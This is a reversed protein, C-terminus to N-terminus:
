ADIYVSSGIDVKLLKFVQGCHVLDMLIVSQRLVDMLSLLLIGVAVDVTILGFYGFNQPIQPVLSNKYMEAEYTQVNVSM